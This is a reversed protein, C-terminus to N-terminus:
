DRVYRRERRPLGWRRPARRVHGRVYVSGGTGVRSDLAYVGPGTFVLLFFAWCFMVALEGNNNIPWFGNPLHQTFYAVAMLGSAIFAAPRTFLGITILVGTILEILAAFWLLSGTPAVASAPWGFLGSTGHCTFLLGFVIRFLSLVVPANPNLRTELRATM